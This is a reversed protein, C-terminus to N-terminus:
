YYVGIMLKLMEESLFKKVDRVFNRSFHGPAMSQYM